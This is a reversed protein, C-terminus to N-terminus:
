EETPETTATIVGGADQWSKILPVFSPPLEKGAPLNRYKLDVNFASSAWSFKNENNECLVVDDFFRPVRPALKRGLTSAMLHVGGTIEDTQRELHSTLIFHCQTSTTMKNLFRELNDQAIGWDGQAKVPKAGVVMDMAMINLGSLSDIVLARDTEWHEVDGFSKGCCTCTFNNMAILVDLYQGYKQKKMDNLNALAKFSMTNIMRANDLMDDWSPVAPKVYKYHIKDGFDKALTRLGPETFLVFPKIGADILTKISHTKGSGTAGVLLTNTGPLM